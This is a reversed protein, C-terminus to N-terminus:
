IAQGHTHLRQTSVYRGAYESMKNASALAAERIEPPIFMVWSLDNVALVEAQEESFNTARMETPVYVSSSSGLPQGIMDMSEAASTAKLSAGVNSGRRSGGPTSTATGRQLM